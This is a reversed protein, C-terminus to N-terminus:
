AASKTPRTRKSRDILDPAPRGQLQVAEHQYYDAMKRFTHKAARSSMANAESRLLSVMKDLEEKRSM